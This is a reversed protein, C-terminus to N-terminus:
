KLIAHEWEIINLQPQFRQHPPIMAYHQDNQVQAYDVNPGFMTQQTSMMEEIWIESMKDKVTTLLDRYLAQITRGQGDLRVEILAKCINHIQQQQEFIHQIQKYLADILAIDEFKGGEKLNLLKREHKRRNKSSRFTKGTSRSTGTYRSAVSTTESILDGEDVYDEDTLKKAKEMRVTKLRNTHKLFTEKDSEITSRLISAYSELHPKVQSEILESDNMRAEFIARLYLRGELLVNLAEEFKEGFEKLLNFADGHRSNAQLGPVLSLAVNRMEEKDYGAQKAIMLCRDVDLIHKASTIAQKLDGAREYMISANEIKGATRLHDAFSLAISKYCEQDDNEFRELAVTYLNHKEVYALCENFHDKGCNAINKFAKEYRKLYDDIRFKRYNEELKNLDRLFQIYEKPDKQSKDAVLLVLRFNYMGLAVNYLENVDAMYLLYRLADDSKSRNQKEGSNSVEDKKLSWILDLANELEGKKVYCTIIPQIFKDDKMSKMVKCMYDCVYTVKNEIKFGEPYVMNGQEYNSAYKTQTYDENELETLFLNLWQPNSIQTLFTEINAIFVNPNHDFIINLSIRQKRLMLMAKEYDTADLLEGIIQLSLVRPQIAELNGRPMQLVTVSDKPVITVLKGGREIRRESVVSPDNFKDFKMFKLSTLQTYAFYHEGIFFSTVGTALKANNLYLNQNDKLAFCKISSNVAVAQLHECPEPINTFWEPEMLEQDKVNITVLRGDTFNVLFSSASTPSAAVIKDNVDKSTKEGTILDYLFITAGNPRNECFVVQGENLWIWHSYNLPLQSMTEDLIQYEKVLNVGMMRLGSRVNSQQTEVSYTLFKGESTVIFLKQPNEPDNIFGVSNIYTATELSCKSMPPPIVNNRFDTLLVQKGDIVGVICLNSM